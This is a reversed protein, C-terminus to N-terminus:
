SRDAVAKALKDIIDDSSLAKLAKAEYEPFLKRATDLADHGELKKLNTEHSDIRHAIVLVATLRVVSAIWIVANELEQLRKEVDNSNSTAM